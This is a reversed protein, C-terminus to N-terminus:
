IDFIYLYKNYTIIYTHHFYSPNNKNNVFYQAACVLTSATLWEVTQLEAVLTAQHTPPNLRAHLIVTLILGQAMNVM